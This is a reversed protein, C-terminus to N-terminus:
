MYKQPNEIIDAVLGGIIPSLEKVNNVVRNTPYYEQVATTGPGIGLGIIHNGTENSYKVMKDMAFPGTRSSGYEDSYVPQGDSIVFIFKREGNQERMRDSAWKIAPGDDNCEAAPTHADTIVREVKKRSDADFTKGFGKFVYNEKESDSKPLTNFGLIEFDIGIRDLVEAFLITAKIAEESHTGGMSGSLDVLLTFKYEKKDALNKREFLDNKKRPDAEFQMVRSLTARSGSSFGRRWRTAKNPYLIEQLEHVLNDIDTSVQDYYKKYSTKKRKEEEVEKLRAELIAKTLEEDEKMKKLLERASIYEEPDVLKPRLNESIEGSHDQLAKKAADKFKNGTGDGTNEDGEKKSGDKTKNKNIVDKIKSKLGSSMERLNPMNFKDSSEPTSKKKYAELIETLEELEGSEESLTSLLDDILQDETGNAMAIIAQRITEEEVDLDVLEKYIPWIKKRLISFGKKAYEVIAGEDADIPPTNLSHEDLFPQAKKLAEQVVASTNPDYEGYTWKREIAEIFEFQYPIYGTKNLLESNIQSITILMDTETHIDRMTERIWEGAGPYMIELASNVRVDETAQLLAEFGEEKFVEQSVFDIRSIRRHMGEHSIAGLAVEPTKLAHKQDITVINEKWNWHTGSGLPGIKVEMTQDHGITRALSEARRQISAIQESVEHQDEIDERSTFKGREVYKRWSKLAEEDFIDSSLADAIKNAAWEKSGVVSAKILFDFDVSLLAKKARELIENDIGLDVLLKQVEPSDERLFSETTGGDERHTEPDIMRFWLIM